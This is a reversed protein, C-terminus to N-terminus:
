IVNLKKVSLFDFVIFEGINEFVSLRGLFFENKRKLSLTQFFSFCKIKIIIVYVTKEFV